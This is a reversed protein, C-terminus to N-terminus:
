LQLYPGGYSRLVISSVLKSENSAVDLCFKLCGQQIFLGRSQEDVCVQRLTRSAALSTQESHFEALRYILM